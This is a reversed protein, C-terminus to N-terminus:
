MSALEKDINKIIDNYMTLKPNAKVEIQIQNKLDNLQKQKQTNTLNNNNVIGNM